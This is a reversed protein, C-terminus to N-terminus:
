DRGALAELVVQMQAVRQQWTPPQPRAATATPPHAIVAAVADAFSARESIQVLEDDADRFGAVPTSVVPRGAIQYEYVKIPDLSDTFPTVVHPVLLVSAHQLYAPVQSHEKGGLLLVGAETLVGADDASLLQPGVLVVTGGRGLRRATEAALEVDLRDAHVTGVYVATDGPPLDHPRPHLGEYPTPDVANPILHQHPHPKDRQLRPSCVVVQRAHRLLYREDTALRARETDGRDAVLWDDTIDYLAPWGTLELLHAGQTANVWLIPDTLGLDRAARAIGRAWRRDSAPDVRRPLPKTPQHLWWRGSTGDAIPPGPRTGRGWTVRHDRLVAHLPDAAPEVFLVRLRPDSRLLGAVLHQNRRWIGDWAELSVVVLDTV